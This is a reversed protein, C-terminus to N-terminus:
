KTKEVNKPLTSGGAGPPQMAGPAKPDKNKELAVGTNETTPKNGCGGGAVLALASAVVLVLRVM